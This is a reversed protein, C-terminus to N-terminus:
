YAKSVPRGCWLRQLRRDHSKNSSAVKQGESQQEGNQWTRKPRLLSGRLDGCFQRDFFPLVIGLQHLDDEDGTRIEVLRALVFIDRATRHKAVQELLGGSDKRHQCQVPRLLRFRQRSCLRNHTQKVAAILMRQERRLPQIFQSLQRILSDPQNAQMLEHVNRFVEAVPHAVQHPRSPFLSM